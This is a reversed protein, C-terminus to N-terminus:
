KIQLLTEFMSSATTIVKAIAEYARQARQM